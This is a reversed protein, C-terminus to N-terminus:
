SSHEIGAEWELLELDVRITEIQYILSLKPNAAVQETLWSQGKPLPVSDVLERLGSTVELKKDEMGEGRAM